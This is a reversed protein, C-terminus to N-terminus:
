ASEAAAMMAVQVDWGEAATRLDVYLIVRYLAILPQALLVGAFAWPTVDGNLLSGFPQGLQLVFQVLGQAMLETGLTVWLLLAGSVLSGAVSQGVGNSTLAVSRGMARPISLRELASAEVVWLTGAHAPLWLTGLSFVSATLSIVTSVAVLPYARWGEGAVRLVDRVGVKADFLRRAVLLTFPVQLAPAVLVLAVLLAARSENAPLAALAAGMLVAVPALVSAAMRALVGLNDRLVRLALDLSEFPSRPRLAIRCAFPNV